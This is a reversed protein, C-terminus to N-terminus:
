GFFSRIQVKKRYLQHIGTRRVKGMWRSIRAPLALVHDSHYEDLYTNSKLIGKQSFFHVPARKFLVCTTYFDLSYVECPNDNKTSTVLYIPKQYKVMNGCFM